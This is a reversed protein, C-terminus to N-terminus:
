TGHWARRPMAAGAPGALLLAAVTLDASTGPNIGRAKLSEDWAAFDPDADVARRRRARAALGAGRTMVTHAVAEGHKRVIHSDALTGLLLLYLRQVAAATDADARRDADGADTFVRSCRRCRWSSCTPTATRTSARSATATARGAGDGRAPRREARRARGAGARRRARRPQGARHRSLRGACRGPRPRGAGSRRGRAAAARERLPMWRARRGRRHPACLLVIGLNTNCGAAAWAPAGGRGRHARRSARGARVAARGRGARQRHVAAADM